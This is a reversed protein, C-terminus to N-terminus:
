LGESIIKLLKKGQESQPDVIPKTIQVVKQSGGDTYKAFAKKLKNKLMAKTGSPFVGSKVALEQMETIAMSEVSQGFAEASDYGFPNKEKFGMLKELDQAEKSEAKIHDVGDSFEMNELKSKKNTKSKKRAM